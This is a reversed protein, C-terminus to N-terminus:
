NVSGTKQVYARYDALLSTNTREDYPRVHEDILQTVDDHYDSEDVFNRTEGVDEERDFLLDLKQDEIRMSLTFRDTTIATQGFLESLVAPKGRHLAADSEGCELYPLLSKGLSEDLPSADAIALMTAPLDIQEVLANSKLSAGFRPPRILCPVHMAKEYFVAKGQLGHDGLMEGHDSNFIVWTNELHGERRLTDIVRGVWEDILTVNAYYWARWRQRQFRTARAVSPSRNRFGELFRSPADELQLEGADLEDVDYMDRYTTPGDYPDHPGTFQIQLYFPKSGDYREIWEVAKRGIFSDEDEGPPVPSPEQGWPTMNGSRMESFWARIFKRHMDLWGNAALHDTYHCDMWATEIPDNLELCDEFGWQNLVHEMEKVHVGPKGGAGHRWLHTKGIVATSYGADRINRVHSPGLPDAGSRNSWIGNERVLQGTMLCTRAPVCLPSNSICREFLIGQAALRDLNPTLAEGGVAGICDGRMQDAFIFVLNPKSDAM